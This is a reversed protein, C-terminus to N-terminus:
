ILLIFELFTECLDLFYYVFFVCIFIFLFSKNLLVVPCGVPFVCVSLGFSSERSDCYLRIGYILLYYKITTLVHLNTKQIMFKFLIGLYKGVREAKYWIQEDIGVPLPTM